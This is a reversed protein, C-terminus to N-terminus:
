KASGEGRMSCSSQAASFTASEVSAAGPAQHAVCDPQSAIAVYLMHANAGLVLVTLAAVGLWVATTSKITHSKM